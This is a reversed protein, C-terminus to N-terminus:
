THEKREGEGRESGEKLRLSHIQRTHPRTHHHTLLTRAGREESGERGEEGGEAKGRVCDGGLETATDVRGDTELNTALSSTMM